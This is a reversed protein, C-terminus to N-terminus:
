ALAVACQRLRGVQESVVQIATDIDAETNFRGIGFRISTHAAEPSLGIATLVHSPELTASTCASGSSVAIAKLSLMLSEGEVAELSINLNGPLRATPHGNLTVGVIRENLGAFLRDRLATLRASESQLHAQSIACAAGLGVIAPVNLTGARMGREQGGGHMQSSLRVRPAKRRVFLAGVGKPGYLKHASISLLDIGMANVDVPLKGATQAADVHFLVGKAKCLAGIATVDHVTGIENNGHMISVLVTDPRIAAALEDLDISGFRDVGLVTVEMGNGALVMATDLTAKHETNVTIMHRGKDGYMDAVGKLALNISETAGSTFVIEKPSAGILAGVQQRATEVAQEAAWGFAHNRSAANGFHETFFPLMTAVVQPDVPTTAHNDLYIMEARDKPTLM